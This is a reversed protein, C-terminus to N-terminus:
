NLRRLYGMVEKIASEPTSAGATIGVTETKKLWEPKIQRKSNIWYSKKNLSKSIEYLRKTNASKKSGIIIMVDNVKPMHRIEEQKM